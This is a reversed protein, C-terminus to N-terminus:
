NKILEVTANQTVTADSKPITSIYRLRWYDAENRSKNRQVTVVFLRMILGTLLLYLLIM